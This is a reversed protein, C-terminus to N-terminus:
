RKAAAKKVESKKAAPKKAGPKQAPSAVADWLATEIATKGGTIQFTRGKTKPMGLVAVVVAAVDARAIKGPDVGEEGLTIKGTGKADTLEAPEVITFDLGSERIAKNAARKQKFYDKMEANAAWEKPVPTSGGLSSISVYRKVGAKGAALLTRTTGKRDVASSEGEASGAAFVVADAGKFVHEIDALPSSDLDVIVTEAGAKVLEAMHEPNRITAVVMDGGAILLDVVLRGTRGHGGVVVIRSM